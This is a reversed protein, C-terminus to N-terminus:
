DTIAYFEAKKQRQLASRTLSRTSMNCEGIPPIRRPSPSRFLPSKSPAPSLSTGTPRDPTGRAIALVRPPRLPDEHLLLLLSDTIVCHDPELILGRLLLLGSLRRGLGLRRDLIDYLPWEGGM